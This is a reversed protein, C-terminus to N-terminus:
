VTHEFLRSVGLHFRLAILTKFFSVASLTNDLHELVVNQVNTALILQREFNFNEKNELLRNPKKLFNRIYISIKKVTPYVILLDILVTTFIRRQWKFFRQHCLLEKLTM